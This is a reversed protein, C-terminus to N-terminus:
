FGERRAAQAPEQPIGHLKEMGYQHDCRTVATFTPDYFRERVRWSFEQRSLQVSPTGKRVRPKAM